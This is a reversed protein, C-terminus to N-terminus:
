FCFVTYSIIQHSSNLRTSTRDSRRMPCTAPVVRHDTPMPPSDPIADPWLRSDFGSLPAHFGNLILNAQKLLDHGAAPTFSLPRLIPLADHLSLTYSESTATHPLP